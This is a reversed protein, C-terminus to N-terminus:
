FSERTIQQITIVVFEAPKLPAFGVVINVIGLQRDNATTTEGDCKVFFAQDPTGGEFAGQRFLSMLFAGVNLRIKAWLPEDNPEFVVWQTGRYLSEEIFLALRRVPIYKWESPNDDSGDLTRAGWNVFGAPFTRMCNAAKKNLVGNELDTLNVDLGLIGNITAETGAPAKWVGRTADTRAMLGAIAGGPGMTKTLGNSAYRLNPYFVAAHDRASGVLARLSDIKTTDQVVEPRGNVDTWDSPADVLLFARKSKSYVGAPGVISNMTAQSIEEDKPLVMLNFLDVPDLAYFGTQANPDGTYDSAEPVTGDDGDAGGTSFGAGGGGTGLTYQRVNSTWGTNPQSLDFQAHNAPTTTITGIQTNITGETAILALHYGWVEARWKLGSTGNIARAVIRLKERVGDDDGAASQYWADGAATTVLNNPAANLPVNTGDIAIASFADQQQGSVANVVDLSGPTGPPGLRLFVANPAPRFNSYRTPELGGQDVGLLLSGAIDDTSARRVRVSVEGGSAATITLLRQTGIQQGVSVDVQNSPDVEQLAQDVKDKINTQIDGVAGPIAPAISLDVERFPGENLSIEFKSHSAAFLDNLAAQVSAGSTGLPNRGQSFGSFSNTPDALENAGGSQADAHLALAILGSSQTVFNPAFRPANPNMSLATHSETAVATGGEEHIVTLNFTEDPNATDYVVALRVTNGWIGEAKATAVLVNDGNLNQLTVAAPTANRALRIVYCETGGNLFFLRVSDALNSKPHPDGFRRVYDAPSLLRVAKNIPGMSARGFFAAISTAVGVIARVGSPKEQIYVGPYSVQVM